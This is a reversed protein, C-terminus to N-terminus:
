KLDLELALSKLKEQLAKIDNKIDIVLPNISSSKCISYVDFVSTDFENNLCKLLTNSSIYTNSMNQKLVEEIDKMQFFSIEKLAKTNNIIQYFLKSDIKRAGRYAANSEDSCFNCIQFFKDGHSYISPLTNHEFSYKLMEIISKNAIVLGDAKNKDYNEQNICITIYMFNTYSKNYKVLIIPFNKM